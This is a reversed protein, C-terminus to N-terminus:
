EKQYVAPMKYRYRTAHRNLSESHGVFLYGGTETLNYLKDVLEEKSKGDFYIMVNRCFIAHFKQKFPFATDILNLKRFIVESRIKDNLVVNETDIPKFYRQQWPAPLSTIKEKGYVGKKAITLVKDSIDTALIRTDWNPKEMGFFDDMLIALTYPEEGSSCAASWVRLDKHKATRILNTLVKSRFFDFHEAERMFFTYNTTLKDMMTAMAQGTKDAAVYSMYEPLSKFHLSLLLSNLRGAVIARKEDTLNIGCNAKVYDSFQRYEAESFHIM